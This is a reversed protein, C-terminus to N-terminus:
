SIGAEKLGCYKLRFFHEIERRSSLVVFGPDTGPLAVILPVSYARCLEEIRGDRLHLAQAVFFQHVTSAM